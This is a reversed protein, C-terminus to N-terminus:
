YGNLILPSHPLTPEIVKSIADGIDEAYCIDGTYFTVDSRMAILGGHAVIM